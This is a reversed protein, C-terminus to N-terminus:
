CAPVGGPHGRPWTPRGVFKLLDCVPAPAPVLAGSGPAPAPVLARVAEITEPQAYALNKAVYDGFLEQPRVESESPAAAAGASSVSVSLRAAEEARWRLVRQLLEQLQGARGTGPSGSSGGGESPPERDRLRFMVCLCLM